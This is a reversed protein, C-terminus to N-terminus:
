GRAPARSGADPLVEFHAVTFEALLKSNRTVFPTRTNGGTAAEIAPWGTWVSVTTFADPPRAGLAFAILGDNAEVDALVEARAVDVYADLEGPRVRGHFLRLVRTPESREFSAYILLPVQEVRDVILHDDGLATLGTVDIPAGPATEPDDIWTSALVRARDDRSGHRGVWADVVRADDLLRPLVLDRLGADFASEAVGPRLSVVRLYRPHPV